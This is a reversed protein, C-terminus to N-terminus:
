NHYKTDIYAKLLANMIHKDEDSVPRGDFQAAHEIARSIDEPTYPKEDRGLLFDVSTGFYDALRALDEGKPKRKNWTYLLNESFGNDLAVKKISIRRKKALFKIRDFINNM